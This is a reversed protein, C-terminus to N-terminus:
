LSAITTPDNEYTKKLNIIGTMSNHLHKTLNYELASNNYSLLVLRAKEILNDISKLTFKRNDGRLMRWLGIPNYFTSTEMYFLESSTNLKSFVPLHGLVKLNIWLIDDM